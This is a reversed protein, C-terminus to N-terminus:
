IKSKPSLTHLNKYVYNTDNNRISYLYFDFERVDEDNKFNLVRLPNEIWVEVNKLYTNGLNRIYMMPFYVNKDLGIHIGYGFSLYPKNNGGSLQEFSNNQIDIILKQTRNLEFQANNLQRNLSLISLATDLQIRSLKLLENQLSDKMRKEKEEKAESIIKDDLSKKGSLFSIVAGLVVLVSAIFAFYKGIKKNAVDSFLKEVFGIVAGLITLLIGAILLIYDTNM